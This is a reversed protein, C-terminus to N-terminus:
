STWRQSLDEQFVTARISELNAVISRGLEVTASSEASHSLVYQLAELEAEKQDLEAQEQLAERARSWPWPRGKAVTEGEAPLVEMLEGSGEVPRRRASPQSSGEVADEVTTAHIVTTTVESRFTRVAGTFYLLAGIFFAAVVIKPIWKGPKM